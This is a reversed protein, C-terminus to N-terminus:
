KKKKSNNSSHENKQERQHEAQVQRFISQMEAQLQEMRAIIQEKGIFLKAIQEEIVKMTDRANKKVLIEKGVNVFLENEVIKTKIFIGKGLNSLIEEQGKKDIEGLSEKIATMEAIQQEIVGIKEELQSAEQQMMSLKILYEQQEM